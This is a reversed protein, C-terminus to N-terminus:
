IRRGVDTPHHELDTLYYRLQRNLFLLALASLHFDASEKNAFAPLFVAPGDGTWNEGHWLTEIGEWTFPLVEMDMPSKGDPIPGTDLDRYAPWCHRLNALMLERAQKVQEREAEQLGSLWRCMKSLREGAYEAPPQWHYPDGDIWHLAPRLVTHYYALLGSDEGFSAPDDQKLTQWESDLQDLIAALEARSGAKQRAASPKKGTATLPM